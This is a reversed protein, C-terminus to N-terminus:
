EVIMGTNLNLAEKHIVLNGLIKCNVMTMRPIILILAVVQEIGYNRIMHFLHSSTIWQEDWQNIKSSSGILQKLTRPQTSCKASRHGEIWSSPQHSRVRIVTTSKHKWCAGICKYIIKYKIRNFRRYRKYYRKDRWKSNISKANSSRSNRRWIRGSNRSMDMRKIM